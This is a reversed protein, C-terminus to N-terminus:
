FQKMEQYSPPASPYSNDDQWEITIYYENRNTVRLGGHTGPANTLQQLSYTVCV